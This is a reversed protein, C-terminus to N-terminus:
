TQAEPDRATARAHDLIVAPRLTRHVVMSALEGLKINHDRAYRRLMAFATPLDVDGAHALVGKAQELLVRSDLAQQLQQNVVQSDTRARDQILAITAVDALAQALRLDGPELAGTKDGFLNLAGVVVDELRMPVAHVSVVNAKEAAHAFLPWRAAAAELDPVSVPQGELYCTQCPGQRRQVQFAELDAIRDSSAALVHLTGRRDALLLGAAHVDLLRTCDAVLDTLLENVDHGRVLSSAMSVLATVIQDERTSM